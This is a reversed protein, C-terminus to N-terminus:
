EGIEEVHPPAIPAIMFSLDISFGADMTENINDLDWGELYFSVIIKTSKYAFVPILVTNSAEELTLSPEVAIDEGLEMNSLSAEWDLAITGKKHIANFTSPTGVLVSDDLEPSDKYVLKDRNYIEGFCIEKDNKSNNDYYTNYYGAKTEEDLISTTFNACLPGGFITEETKNPDIIWYSYNVADYYLISIRLSDVIKNLNELMEEESNIYPYKNLNRKASQTNYAENAVFKTLEPDITVYHDYDGTLYLEHTFYGMNKNANNLYPVGNVDAMGTYQRKFVPETAKENIWSSSFMSSVPYFVTDHPGEIDKEFSLELDHVFTEEIDLTSIKLDDQGSFYIDFQEVEAESASLYWAFTTSISAITLAITSGLTFIIAKKMNM